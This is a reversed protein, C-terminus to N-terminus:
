HVLSSWVAAETMEYQDSVETKLTHEGKKKTGQRNEARSREAMRFLSRSTRYTLVSKDPQKVRVTVPVGLGEAACLLSPRPTEANVATM